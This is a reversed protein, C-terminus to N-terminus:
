ATVPDQDVTMNAIDSSKSYDKNFPVLM